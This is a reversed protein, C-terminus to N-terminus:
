REEFPSSGVLGLDQYISSNLERQRKQHAREGPMGNLAWAVVLGHAPDAFGCSSQVGSHGFAQPSAHRGYGYPVTEAGYHNSNTLFGLGFDLKHFFTEDFLGTRHLSTFLKVTEPQLIQRDNWEGGNLLMSYFHTLERIPGRASSGPRALALSDTGQGPLLDRKGLATSYALGLRDSLRSQDEPPIALWTDSMALPELLTRKIFAPFPEASLRQIIEGLIFWAAGTSYGARAGVPWDNELPAECIQRVVDAWSQEFDLKDASRFGATHTLLHRITITEKGSRAFEPIYTAVTHDLDVLRQEAFQAISIATLPKGSSFWPLISGTTMPVGERAEGCAFDLVVQGRHRVCIQGGLHLGEAVGENLIRQTREM